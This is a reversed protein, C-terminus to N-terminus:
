KKVQQWGTWREQISDRHDGWFDVAEKSGTDINSAINEGVSMTKVVDPPLITADDKFAGGAPYATLYAKMRQPDGYVKLFDYAKDVYPSSALITWGDIFLAGRDWLEGLHTHNDRNSVAVRISYGTSMVVDGKSVWETPQSGSEWWQLEPKITDLKAFARDVGAPTALVKYVDERKVGDAMLAFELVAKPDNRLGRKGPYAKLDFFDELKTPPTKMTDQNYMILMSTTGVGVSCDHAAQPIMRDRYGIRAWDLKVFFGEECGRLVEASETEVVDWLANGSEQMAKFPGWGGLYVDDLVKIKEQEAFPQFFYKRQNDQLPGGWSAFTFDRAQAPIASWVAGAAVAALALKSIQKNM